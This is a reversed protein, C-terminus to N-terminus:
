AAIVLLYAFILLVASLALKRKLDKEKFLIGGVIVTIAVYLTNRVPTVLSADAGQLSLYYTLGYGVTLVAMSFISLFYNRTTEIIEKIGDYKLSIFVAFDFAVFLETLVFLAYVNVSGLLYKTLIAEVAVLFCRTFIMTRYKNSSFEKSPRREFLLVYIVLSIMIISLYQLLSLREGLFVFALLAVFLSPLASFPGAAASISGHRYIRAALLYTLAVAIGNIFILVLQLPTISFNAFLIFPLSIIAAVFSFASSFATAHEKKLAKKEVLSFLGLMVSSLLAFYYWEIM